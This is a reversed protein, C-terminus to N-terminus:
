RGSRVDVTALELSLGGADFRALFLLEEVLHNLRAANRRVIDAFNADEEGLPTDGTGLLELYGIISTLPTRLEHSVTAM